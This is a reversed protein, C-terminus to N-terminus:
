SPTNPMAFGCNGTSVDCAASTTAGKLSERQSNTQLQSTVRQVGCTNAAILRALEAQQANAAQGTLTVIGDRASVEVKMGHTARHWHLQAKVRKVLTADDTRCEIPPGAAPQASAPPETRIRNVVAKIGDVSSAIEEALAREGPESVGGRLTAVSDTVEVNIRFPSLFPSRIYLAAIAARLCPDTCVESHVGAAAAPLTMCLLWLGMFSFKM